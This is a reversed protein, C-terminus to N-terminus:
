RTTLTRAVRFGKGSRDRADNAGRHASRVFRPVDNWSGGRHIRTGCNRPIHASGDVPAHDYGNEYCDQVWEAVNGHMDHLGFGNPAFSGVEIAHNEYFNAHATSIVDGFAYKTSTGARAAYEWEAETLLRYASAGSLGLKRNLWPLFEDSIEIWSVHVVPRAGRTRNGPDEPRRTCAGDALCADWEDFTIEFKGVALQYGIAIERQPAESKFIDPEARPNDKRLRAIDAASSGRVGRGKPLAVMAPGCFDNSCDRFDRRAPDNPDLCIEGAGVVEAQIGKCDTNVPSPPAARETEKRSFTKAHAGTAPKCGYGLECLKENAERFSPEEVSLPKPAGPITVGTSYRPNSDVRVFATAASGDTTKIDYACYFRVSVYLCGFSRRRGGIVPESCESERACRSAGIQAIDSRALITMEGRDLRAAMSRWPRVVFAEHFNEVRQDESLSPYVWWSRVWGWHLGVPLVALGALWLGVSWKGPRTGAM